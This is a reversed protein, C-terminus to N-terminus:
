EDEEENDEDCTCEFFDGSLGDENLLNGCEECEELETIEEDETDEYYSNLEKYFLLRAEDETDAEITGTYSVTTTIHFTAM